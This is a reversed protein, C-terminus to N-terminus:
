KTRNNIYLIQEDNILSAMQKPTIDTPIPKGIRWGFQRNTIPQGSLVFARIIKEEMIIADCYPLRDIINIIPTHGADLITKIFLSTKTTSKGTRLHQNYRIYLNQTAGVYFVQGNYSLSYIFTMKYM